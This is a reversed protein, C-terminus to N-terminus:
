AFKLGLAPMSMTVTTGQESSQINITGGLQQAFANMLDGGMQDATAMVDYGGGNDKIALRAEDGAVDFHLEIQGHSEPGFGHRYANTVAEVTFLALPVAHDIQIAHQGVHCKLEVYPRSHNSARLQTCLEGLLNEIGTESPREDAEEQQYLLRHILSLAAIRARTQSLANQADDDDLRATQLTLLSMVIQLNNKVRHHVERTLETKAALASTLVTDRAKITRAMLHLDESLERVELPARAFAQEDGTFDGYAFQRSLVGLKRLWNVALRSTAFWVALSAFLIACIPLIFSLQLQRLSPSTVTQQPEAYLVSLEKGEIPAISYIWRSGDGATSVPLRGANTSLSPHLRLASSSLITKGQEDIVAAMGGRERATRELSQQISELSVAATFAGDQTGDGRNVPMMMIIVPRKSIPGIVPDSLTFEPNTIGKKWWATGAYNQTPDFAKVSCRPAGSADSRAYNIVAASPQVSNTLAVSCDPTMAAVVPNRSAVRLSYRALMFPDREREAIAQAATKLRADEINRMNNIVFASQAFTVLVFPLLAAVVILILSHRLTRPRFRKAPDPRAADLEAGTM